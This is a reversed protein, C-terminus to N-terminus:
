EPTSTLPKSYNIFSSRAFNILDVQGTRILCNVGVTWCSPFEVVFHFGNHSVRLLWSFAFLFWKYSLIRRKMKNVIREQCKRRENEGVKNVIQCCLPAINTGKKLLSPVAEIKSRIFLFTNSKLIWVWLLALLPTQNLERGRPVRGTM